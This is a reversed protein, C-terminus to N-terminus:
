VAGLEVYFLRWRQQLRFIGGDGNAWGPLHGSAQRYCDLKFLEAMVRPANALDQITEFLPTIQLGRDCQCWKAILLVVLVDSANHAM